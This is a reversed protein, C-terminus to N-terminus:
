VFVCLMLKLAARHWMELMNIRKLTSQVFPKFISGMHFYIQANYTKISQVCHISNQIKHIVESMYTSVYMKKIMLPLIPPM